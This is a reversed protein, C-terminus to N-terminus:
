RETGADPKHWWRDNTEVPDYFRWRDYKRIRPAVLRENGEHM